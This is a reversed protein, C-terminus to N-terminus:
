GSEQSERGSRRRGTPLSEPAPLIGRPIYGLAPKCDPEALWRIHPMSEAPLVRVGAKYSSAGAPFFLCPERQVLSPSSERIPGTDVIFAMETFGKGLCSRSCTNVWARWSKSLKRPARNNTVPPVPKKPLHSTELKTWALRVKSRRAVITKSVLSASRNRSSHGAKAASGAIEKNWPSTRLKSKGDPFKLWM